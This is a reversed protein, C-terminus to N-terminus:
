EDSAVQKISGSDDLDYPQFDLIDDIKCDLVSCIRVLIDATVNQGKAMKGIANTSIGASRCLVGKKMQKDILLKFLKNYSVRMCICGMEDVLFMM